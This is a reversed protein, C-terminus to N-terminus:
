EFASEAGEVRGGDDDGIDDAAADQETRGRNGGCNGVRRPEEQRPDTPSDEREHARHGVGLQGRQPRLGAALVDVQAFGETREGAKQRSPGREHGAEGARHGRARDEQDDREVAEDGTDGVARRQEGNWNREGRVRHGERNVRQRGAGDDDDGRENVDAANGVAAHGAVHQRRELNHRQHHEDPEPQGGSGAGGAFTMCDTPGTVVVPNRNANIGTINVYEPHFAADYM